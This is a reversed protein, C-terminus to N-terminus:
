CVDGCSYRVTSVANNVCLDRRYDATDKHGFDIYLEAFNNLGGASMPNSLSNETIQIRETDTRGFVNAGFYGNGLPLSWKEWAENENSSEGANAASYYKLILNKM